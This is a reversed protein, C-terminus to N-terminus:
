FSSSRKENREIQNKLKQYLNIDEECFKEIIKKENISLSNLKKQKTINTKKPTLKVGSKSYFDNIFLDIRELIGYAFYNEEIFKIPDNMKHKGILFRSIYRGYVPENEMLYSIFGEFSFNGAAYLKNKFKKTIFNKKLYSTRFYNYESLMRDFPDRAVSIIRKQISHLQIADITLHGHIIDNEQIKKNTKKWVGEFTLCKHKKWISKTTNKLVRIKEITSINQNSEKPLEIGASSIYFVKSNPLASEFMRALSTSGCKPVRIVVYASM